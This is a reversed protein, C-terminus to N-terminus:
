EEDVPDQRTVLGERAAISSDIGEITNPVSTLTRLPILSSYWDLPVLAHFHSLESETEYIMMVHVGQGHGEVHVPPSVQLVELLETEPLDIPCDADDPIAAISIVRSGPTFFESENNPM